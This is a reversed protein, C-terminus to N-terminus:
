SARTARVPTWPAWVSSSLTRAPRAVQLSLAPPAASLAQEGEVRRVRECLECRAPDALTHGHSAPGDSASASPESDSAFGELDHTHISAVGTTLFLVLLAFAARLPTSRRDRPADLGREYKLSGDM